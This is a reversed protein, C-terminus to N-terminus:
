QKKDRPSKSIPFSLTFETGKGLESKVEIKGNHAYILEKIITLGIGLGGTTRSRSKEGRYFRDFIYPLEQEPIGKGTDKISIIINTGERFSKIYIGGRDTYKIANDLLNLLIEKIRKRDANIYFPKSSKNIKIFLNKKNAEIRIMESTEIIFDNLNIKELNLKYKKSDLASLISLENLMSEMREVEDKIIKLSKEKEKKTFDKNDLTELYGNIVTLPTRLDHSVNQVLTKRMKEVESLHEAMHDLARALLGMEDNAKANIRASYDGKEIRKSFKVMKKIPNVTLQSVFFALASGILISITGVWLLVFKMNNLFKEGYPKVFMKFGEPTEHIIIQNFNKGIYLKTFFASFFIVVIVLFIYTLILKVKFSM